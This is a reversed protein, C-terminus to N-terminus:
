LSDFSTLQFCSSDFSRVTISNETRESCLTKNQISTAQNQFPLTDTPIREGEKHWASKNGWGRPENYGTGSSEKQWLQLSCPVLFYSLWPLVNSSSDPMTQEESGDRQGELMNPWQLRILIECEGHNKTLHRGLPGGMRALVQSNGSGQPQSQWGGKCHKQKKVSIRRISLLAISSHSGLLGCLGLTLAGLWDGM